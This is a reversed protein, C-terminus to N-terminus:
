PSIFIIFKKKVAIVKGEKVRVDCGKVKVKKYGDDFPYRKVGYCWWLYELGNWLNM